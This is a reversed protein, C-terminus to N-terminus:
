AAKIKDLWERGTRHPKGANILDLAKKAIAPYFVSGAIMADAKENAERVRERIENASLATRFEDCHIEISDRGMKVNCRHHGVFLNTDNNVGGKARSDLHCMDVKADTVDFEITLGNQTKKIFPNDSNLEGCLPCNEFALWLSARRIIHIDRAKFRSNQETM